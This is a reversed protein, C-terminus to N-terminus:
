GALLNRRGAPIQEDAHYSSRVLAGSEVHQFGLQLAAVKLEVFEEPRYYRVVEAHKRRIM